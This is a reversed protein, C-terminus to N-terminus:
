KWWSRQYSAQYSPGDMRRAITFFLGIGYVDSKRKERTGRAPISVDSDSVLSFGWGLSVRVFCVTSKGADLELEELDLAGDDTREDGPGNDGPESIAPPNPISSEKKLEGDQSIGTYISRTDRLSETALTSWTMSDDKTFGFPTWAPHAAALKEDVMPWSDDEDLDDIKRDGTQSEVATSYETDQTCPMWTPGDNKDFVADSFLSAVTSQASLAPAVKPSPSPLHAPANLSSVAPQFFTADKPPVGPPVFVSPKNFVPGSPLVFGSNSNHTSPPSDPPTTSTSEGSVHTKARTSPRTPKFGKEAEKTKDSPKAEFATVLDSVNLKRRHSHHDPTPPPNVSVEPSPASEMTQIRQVAPFIETSVCPVVNRGGREAIRAEAAVKAARAEALAAAAAPGGLSKSMNVGKGSRAGLGEVTRKFTDMMDGQVDVAMPMIDDTSTFSAIRSPQAGKSHFTIDGYDKMNTTDQSAAQALAVDAENMKAVKRRREENELAMVGAVGPVSTTYMDGSKRKVGSSMGPVTNPALTGVRKAPVELARVEKAKALWSTRKGASVVAPAANPLPPVSGVGIGISPERQVRMSKRLPSPAPLSPFQTPLEKIPISMINPTSASVPLPMTTPDNGTPTVSAPHSEPLPSTLHYPYPKANKELSLPQTTPSGLPVTHFTQSSSSSTIGLTQDEDIDMKHSPEIVQSGVDCIKGEQENSPQRNSTSMPQLVQVSREASEDGEAIMSLDNAESAVPMLPNSLGLVEPPRAPSPPASSSLIDEVTKEDEDLDDAYEIVTVVSQKSSSPASPDRSTLVENPQRYSTEHMSEDKNIEKANLLAQHFTNM